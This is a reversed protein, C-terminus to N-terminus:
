EVKLYINELILLKESKQLNLLFVVKSDKM